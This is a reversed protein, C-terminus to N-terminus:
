QTKNHNRIVILIQPPTRKDNVDECRTQLAQVDHTAITINSTLNSFRNKYRYVARGHHGGHDGGHISNIRESSVAYPCSGDIGGEFLVTECDKQIPLVLEFRPRARSEKRTLTMLKVTLLKCNMNYANECANECVGLYPRIM